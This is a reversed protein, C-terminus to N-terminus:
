REAGWLDGARAPDYRPPRDPWVFDQLVAIEEKARPRALYVVRPEGSRPHALTPPLAVVDNTLHQLLLGSELLWTRSGPEAEKGRARGAARSAPSSLAILHWPVLAAPPEGSPEFLFLSEEDAVLSSLTGDRLGFYDELLELVAVAASRLEERLRGESERDEVAPDGHVEIGSLEVAGCERLKEGLRTLLRRRSRSDGASLLNIDIPRGM